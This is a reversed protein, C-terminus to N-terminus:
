KCDCRTAYIDDGPTYAGNCRVAYELVNIQYKKYDKDSVGPHQHGLNHAIEHVIVGAWYNRDSFEKRDSNLLYYQNITLEFNGKIVSDKQTGEKALNITVNGVPAWAVSHGWKKDIEREGGPVARDAHIIIKPFKRGGGNFVVNGLRSMQFSLVNTEFDQLIEDCKKLYDPNVQYHKFGKPPNGGHRNFNSVVETRNIRQYFVSLANELLQREKVTFDKDLEEGERLTKPVSEQETQTFRTGAGSVRQTVFLPAPAGHTGL